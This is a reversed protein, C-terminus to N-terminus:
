LSYNPWCPICLIRFALSQVRKKEVSFNFQTSNFTSFSHLCNAAAWCIPAFLTEIASRCLDSRCWNERIDANEFLISCIRTPGVNKAPMRGGKEGRFKVDNDFNCFVADTPAFMCEMGCRVKNITKPKQKRACVDWRRTKPEANSSRTKPEANSSSSSNTSACLM